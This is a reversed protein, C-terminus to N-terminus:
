HHKCWHPCLSAIWQMRIGMHHRWWISVNEADSAMQAPFEGTVPSNGACLGPVRLNSTKKSKHRFLRNLLCDHPHHNSVGDLENHRWLLSSMLSGVGPTGLLRMYIHADWNLKRGMVSVEGWLQFYKTNSTRRWKPPSSTLRSECM